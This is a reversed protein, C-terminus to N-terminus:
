TVKTEETESIQPSPSHAFPLSLSSIEGFQKSGKIWADILKGIQERNIKHSLACEWVWLVRWGQALLAHKEELDRSHNRQLKHLWFERNSSPITAKPCGEHMHWFCGQVFIVTKHKPLVIDPKGPLDKRHLRFRYGRAFLSRRILIEPKTNQSRIRSMNRSREEKTLTDMHKLSANNLRIIRIM